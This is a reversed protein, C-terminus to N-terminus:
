FREIWVVSAGGASPAIGVDHSTSPALPGAHAAGADKATAASWFLYTAIGASVLAVGLSIDAAILKAEAADVRSAPCHGACESRMDSVEASGRLGFYAFSAAGVVAVGSLIWAAASPRFAHDTIPAGPSSSAAPLTGGEIRLTVTRNKEATRVVIDQRTLSSTGRRYTLTHSGPDLDLPLGDLKDAVRRGDCDVQVDTFDEGRPGEARIVVTPMSAEVEALWRTCDSRVLAPCAERACAHLSARADQLKGASRQEQAADAAHVCAVKDDAFSAPAGTLGALLVAIGAARAQM